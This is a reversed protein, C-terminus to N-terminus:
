QADILGDERLVNILPKTNYDQANQDHDTGQLLDHAHKHFFQQMPRVFQHDERPFNADHARLYEGDLFDHISPTRGNTAEEQLVRVVNTQGIADLESRM